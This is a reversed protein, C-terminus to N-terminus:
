IHRQGIGYFYVFFCNKFTNDSTRPLESLISRKKFFTQKLPQKKCYGLWM